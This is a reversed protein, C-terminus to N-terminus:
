RTWPPPSCRSAYSWGGWGPRRTPNKVRFLFEVESAAAVLGLEEQLERIAASKPDEGVNLHGACAVDWCNPFTDKVPARKQMLIGQDPDVLWIHSSAHWFGLRHVEPRSAMRGTPRGFRDLIDFYEM